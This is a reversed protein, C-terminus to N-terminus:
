VGTRLKRQGRSAHLRQKLALVLKCGQYQVDTKM